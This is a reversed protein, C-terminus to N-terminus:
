WGGASASLTASCLIKDQNGNDDVRNSGKTGGHSPGDIIHLNNTEDLYLTAEPYLKKVDELIINISTCCRKLRREFNSLKDM